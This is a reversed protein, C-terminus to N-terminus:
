IEGNGNYAYLDAKLVRIMAAQSANITYPGIPGTYVIGTTTVSDYTVSLASGGMGLFQEAATVTPAVTTPAGNLENLQATLLRAALCALIGLHSPTAITCNTAWNVYTARVARAITATSGAFAEDGIFFPQNAAILAVAAQVHTTWYPDPCSRVFPECSGAAWNYNWDGGYFARYSYTKQGPLLLLASAPVTGDSNLYVDQWSLPSGSCVGNQYLFYVVKGTPVASSLGSLTATDQTAILPVRKGTVNNGHADLVATTLTPTTKNNCALAATSFGAAGVVTFLAVFGTFMGSRAFNKLM